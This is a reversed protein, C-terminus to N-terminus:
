REVTIKDGPKIWGDKLVIAFVVEKQLICEASLDHIKCESYCEKGVHTIKLIADGIRLITGAPLEYLSIGDVTLNEAFKSTCLGEIGSKKIKNISEIGLLSVQRDGKGAHFDGVLGLNVKFYGKDVQHKVIGKKESIKVSIINAMYDGGTLYITKM